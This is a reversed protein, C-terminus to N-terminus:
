YDFAEFMLDGTCEAAKNSDDGDEDDDGGNATDCHRDDVDHEKEEQPFADCLADFEHEEAEFGEPFSAVAERLTYGSCDQTSYHSRLARWRASDTHWDPGLFGVGVNSRMTWIYTQSRRFFQRTGGVISLKGRLCAMAAKVFQTEGRRVGAWYTDELEQMAHQGAPPLCVQKKKNISLVSFKATRQLVIREPPLPSSLIESWTKNAVVAKGNMEEFTDYEDSAMNGM